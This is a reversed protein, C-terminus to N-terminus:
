RASVDIYSDIKPLGTFFVFMRIDNVIKAATPRVLQASDGLDVGMMVGVILEDAVGEEGEKRVSEVRPGTCGEAKGVTLAVGSDVAGVGGEL